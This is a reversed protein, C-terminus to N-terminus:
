IANVEEETKRLILNYDIQGELEEASSGDEYYLEYEVEAPIEPECDEPLGDIYAPVYPQYYTVEVVVPVIMDETDVDIVFETIM